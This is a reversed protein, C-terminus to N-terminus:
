KCEDLTRGYKPEVKLPLDPMWAPPIEMVRKMVRCALDVEEDPVLFIIEDHIQHVTQWKKELTLSQETLLERALAQCLNEVLMAGYIKVWNWQRSKRDYRRYRYNDGDHMMGPYFLKMGSPLEIEGHRFTVPGYQEEGGYAVIHLLRNVEKWNEAIHWMETRYVQIIQQSMERTMDSIGWQGTMFDYCRDAGMGYGCGLITAKGVKREKSDGDIERDPYIKRAMDVYVDQGTRFGEILDEQGSMCANLRAEIQGQDASVIKFGPPAVIGSRLPTGAPLNQLNIAEMGAYRHTHAGSYLLPVPLKGGMRKGIGHLRELRTEQIRSKAQMRAQCAARVADSPHHEALRQFEPDAKAIAPIPLGTSPSPKTPVTVGMSELWKAFKPNSSLMEMTLGTQRLHREMTTREDDIADELLKMDLRLSPEIYWRLTSSMVKLERAPVSDILLQFLTYTLVVDNVCYGHYEAWEEDSFDERHKGLASVVETGKHGIGLADSMVGLSTSGTKHRLAVRGLLMTDLYAKPKVGFKWNMIAGDFMTNQCLLANEHVRYQDCMLERVQRNTMDYLDHSAYVGDPGRVGAILAQFEPHNIYEETTMRGLSYEKSYYTELDLTIVPM